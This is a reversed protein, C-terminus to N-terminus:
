SCGRHLADLLAAVTSAPDDARMVEGMVAVGSAGADVCAAARQPTVGGLAYVPVGAADTLARLGEIGLPPGYGPKSPSAFVPSVTVYDCGERAARTVDRGQHCSRGVLPPRPSPFPDGSALHVAPVDDPAPAAMIVVGDPPMRQQLWRVLHRRADLDLDKERVVVARAGGEIARDVVQALSRDATEAQARDTLVLLEPLGDIV